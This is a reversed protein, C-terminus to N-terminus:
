AKRIAEILADLDNVQKINYKECVVDVNGKRWFGEPCCVILKGKGACLGLELLSIPSKTEPDLYLVVIDAFDIHNLEWLVQGKFDPDDISQEWSNDWDKRRPNFFIINEKELAKTIKTQWNEAKGMEISGALFVSKYKKRDWDWSPEKPPFFVKTERSSGERLISKINDKM